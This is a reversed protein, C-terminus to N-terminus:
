LEPICAGTRGIDRGARCQRAGVVAGGLGGVVAGTSGAVTVGSVAGTRAGIVAGKATRTVSTSECGALTISMLSLVLIRHM